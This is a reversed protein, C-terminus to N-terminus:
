GDLTIKRMIASYFMVTIKETHKAFHLFWYKFLLSLNETHSETNKWHINRKYWFKLAIEYIKM